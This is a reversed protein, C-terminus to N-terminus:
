ISVQVRIKFMIQEFWILIENSDQATNQQFESFFEAWTRLLIWSSGIALNNEFEVYSENFDPVLNQELGLCSNTQISIINM